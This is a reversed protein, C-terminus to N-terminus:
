MSALLAVVVVLWVVGHVGVKGCNEAALKEGSIIAEADHTLIGFVVQSIQVAVGFLKKRFSPDGKTM